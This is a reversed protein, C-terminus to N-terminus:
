FLNAVKEQPDNINILEIESDSEIRKFMSDSCGILFYDQDEIHVILWEKGQPWIYAPYDSVTLDMVQFLETLKGSYHWSEHSDPLYKGTKADGYFFVEESYGILSIIRNVYQKELNPMSQLNAPWFGLSNFLFNSDMKSDFPIDYVKAIEYSRIRDLRSESIIGFEGPIFHEEGIQMRTKIDEVSTPNVPYRDIPFDRYIGTPLLIKIYREFIPPIFDRCQFLGSWSTGNTIWSVLSNTSPSIIKM